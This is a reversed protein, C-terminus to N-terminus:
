LSLDELAAPLDADGNKVSEIWEGQSENWSDEDWIEFKKGQGILVTKKNLGAFERLMAPLLVRGQSDIECETAYGILLRQLLRAQRNLSPLNVLKSEIIEWEPLPYVLLCHDRDVTIVIRGGCIELLRDRYRSPMAMRGKADLTLNNIGRFNMGQGKRWLFGSKGVYV